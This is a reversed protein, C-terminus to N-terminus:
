KRAFVRAPIAFYIAILASWILVATGSVFAILIAIMYLVPGLIYQWTIQRAGTFKDSPIIGQRRTAYGWLVQFILSMVFFTTSYVLAAVRESGGTKLHTALLATPFPIWTIGLLLILNLGILVDDAAEILTFLRHHNMWMVGITFFSALFALFSPWEHLLARGLDPDQPVKIELILLTIAIAFVGDSFAEVRGTENM